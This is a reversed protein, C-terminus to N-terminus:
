AEQNMGEQSGPLLQLDLRALREPESVVDISLIRGNTIQFALVLRVWGRPAVVLGPRGDVLMLLAEQAGGRARKAVTEAGQVTAPAGPPRLAPGVTLRVDPALLQLLDDMRGERAAAAFATVVAREPETRAAREVPAGRLRRRARSALQRAADPSRGLLPAVETFPVEFLDHLVFALREAPALREIVVVLAAGVADALLAIAEPTPAADALDLAEAGDGGFPVEPRRRRQRLRDIGARTVVTSLWARLDAVERAGAGLGALRLWAEQVVEEAEAASGLLRVALAMLRPREADFRGALAADHEDPTM